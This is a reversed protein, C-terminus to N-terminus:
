PVLRVPESLELGSGSSALTNLSKRLQTSFDGIRYACTPVTVGQLGTTPDYIYLSPATQVPFGPPLVLINATIAEGATSSQKLANDLTQVRAKQADTLISRLVTTLQDSQTSEGAQIQWIEVYDEGLRATDIIQAATLNKIENQLEQIELTQRGVYDQNSQLTSEITFAQDDTLSLYNSLATPLPRIQCAVPSMTTPFGLLFNALSGVPQFRGGPEMHICQAEAVLSQLREVELLANVQMLQDTTLVTAIQAQTQALHDNADRRLMEIQGYDSGVTNSDPLSGTMQKCIDSQLDAAKLSQLSNYQALSTNLDNITKVQADTLKLYNQLDSPISQSSAIGVSWSITTLLIICRNTM